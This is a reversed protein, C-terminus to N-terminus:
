YRKTLRKQWTEAQDLLDWCSTKDTLEVMRALQRIRSERDRHSPHSAWHDKYSIRSSITNDAISGDTILPLGDETQLNFYVSMARIEFSLAPYFNEIIKKQFRLNELKELMNDFSQSSFTLRRLASISTESGAIETAVQDAHFELERSLDNYSSNVLEYIKRLGSRILEAIKYVM